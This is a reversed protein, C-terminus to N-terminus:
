TNLLVEMDPEIYKEIVECKMAALSQNTAVGLPRRPITHFLVPRALRSSGPNTRIPCRRRDESAASLYNELVNNDDVVAPSVVHSSNDGTDAAIGTITPMEDQGLGSSSPGQAKFPSSHVPLRVGDAAGLQRSTNRPPRNAAPKMLDARASKARKDVASLTRPSRSSGQALRDDIHPFVCETGHAQCMMCIDSSDRTRCRSKRKKCSLCAPHAHSRYPRGERSNPENAPGINADMTAASRACYVWLIIVFNRSYFSTQSTHLLNPHRAPM